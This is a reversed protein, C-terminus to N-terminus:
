EWLSIGFRNLEPELRRISQYVPEAEPNSARAAGVPEPGNLKVILDYRRRRDRRM